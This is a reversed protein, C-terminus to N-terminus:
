FYCINLRDKVNSNNNELFNLYPNNLNQLSELLEKPSREMSIIIMRVFGYLDRLYSLIATLNPYPKNICFTAIM